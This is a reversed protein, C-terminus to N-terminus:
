KGEKELNKLANCVTNYVNIGAKKENETTKSLNKQPKIKVGCTKGDANEKIEITIKM